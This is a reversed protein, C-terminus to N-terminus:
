KTRQAKSIVRHYLLIGCIQNYVLKRIYCNYKINWHFILSFIIMHLYGYFNLTMFDKYLMTKNSLYGIKDIIFKYTAFIRINLMIAINIMIGQYVNRIMESLQRQRQSSLGYHLSRRIQTVNNWRKPVASGTLARDPITRHSKTRMLASRDVFTGSRSCFFSLPRCAHIYM